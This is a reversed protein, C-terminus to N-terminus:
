PLVQGIAPCSLQRGPGMVQFATTMGLLALDNPVQVELEQTPLYLAM